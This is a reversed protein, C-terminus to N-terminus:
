DATMPDASGTAAAPIQCVQGHGEMALAPIATVAYTSEPSHPSKEKVHQLSALLNSATACISPNNLLYHQSASQAGDFASAAHCHWCTGTVPKVHHGGHETEWTERRGM